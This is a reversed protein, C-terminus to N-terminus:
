QSKQESLDRFSESIKETRKNVQWDTRNREGDLNTFVKDCLNDLMKLTELCLSVM